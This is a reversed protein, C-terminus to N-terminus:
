FSRTLQILSNGFRYVTAKLRKIRNWAIVPPGIQQQATLKRALDIAEEPNEAFIRYSISIPVIAEMRVTFYEKQKVPPTPQKTEM